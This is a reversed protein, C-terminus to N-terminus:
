CLLFLKTLTDATKEKREDRAKMIQLVSSRVQHHRESAADRETNMRKLVEFAEACVKALEAIRKGSELAEQKYGQM